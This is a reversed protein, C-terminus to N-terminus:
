IEPPRASNMAGPQQRLHFNFEEGVYKELRHNKGHPDFDRGPM